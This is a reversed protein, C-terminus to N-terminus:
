GGGGNIFTYVLKREDLQLYGNSSIYFFANWAAKVIGMMPESHVQMSQVDM